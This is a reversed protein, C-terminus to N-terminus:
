EGDQQNEEAVTTEQAGDIEVVESGEVIPNGNEDLEVEEEIEEHPVIAISTILGSDKINMVKVGKTDRGIKRVEDAKIRIITGNDAIMMIDNEESVMKLNVLKGTQENFVGAKVGQGARGQTRYDDPSSRKGFGFESITLVEQAEDVLVMDVVYDDDKLKMSKVGQTDRGMARVDEEKFRICKGDHSALLLEDKGGTVIAAILEDDETLKIAKKGTRRISEFETLSTKKILGKRTALMLYGEENEKMPLLTTVKEGPDLQLINVIARGRATRSAEPVEYGKISYVKGLNTFFMLDDHTSTTFINEVFDEEKTKHGTIGKGGRHQSRYEDVPQRKVYGGHTMSIIIDEKEILDAINLESYDYSVESRRPTNYTEKVGLLEEKVIDRVKGIDGLIELYNAIEQKKAELEEAIKEVELSCLRRLRMDLIATAQKDSLLFRAMLKDMADQNDLASKIIHVVEDIEALAIALGQLIHEREQAKELDFSTRRTIVEEQHLIYYELIQKLNLVRPTGNVLALLIMSNSIQLQTQKFLTNLVVQANSDKKVDIVVRLGSRDSEDKIDSIGELRKDKVQDAINEILRAKNVQYPLETVIIRCRGNPLEEIDTKARIIAGGRGTKYAQRIAARGLVIGATPYDPAPVYQMLDEIELEPNDMLAITADIVEGLNHPPISTAM